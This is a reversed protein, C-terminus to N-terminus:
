QRPAPVQPEFPIRRSPDLALLFAGVEMESQAKDAYLRLLDMTYDFDRYPPFGYETNYNTASIKGLHRKMEDLRPLLEPSEPRLRVIDFEGLDEMERFPDKRRLLEQIAAIRIAALLPQPWIDGAEALDKVALYSQLVAEARLEPVDVFYEGKFPLGHSRVAALALLTWSNDATAQLPKNKPVVKGATRIVDEDSEIGTSTRLELAAATSVELDRARLDGLLFDQAKQWLARDRAAEGVSALLITLLAPEETSAWKRDPELRPAVETAIRRASELIEGREAPDVVRYSLEALVLGAYGADAGSANANERAWSRVLDLYRSDGTKDYASLMGWLLIATSSSAGLSPPDGGHREIVQDALHKVLNGSALKEILVANKATETLAEKRNIGLYTTLSERLVEGQALPTQFGLLEGITPALDTQYAPKEVVAGKKIDPGIALLMIHRCGECSDGHEAFGEHIGDLHYGHDNTLFLATRDRYNPDSQIKGWLKALLEDQHRIAETHREWSGSHAMHDTAGFNAYVIRPRDKEMVEVVKQFVDSDAQLSSEGIGIQSRPKFRNRYAPFSTLPDYAYPGKGFVVWVKEPAIKQEDALYDFLTPMTNRPGRNRMKQWTGTAITSHGAKTITVDNNYFRTYLTGQPRLEDWLRPIYRHEPDGFTSRWATGDMVAIVVNETRYREQGSSLSATAILLIAAVPVPLPQM